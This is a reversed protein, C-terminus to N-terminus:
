CLDCVCVCVHVPVCARACSVPGLSVSSCRLCPQLQCHLRPPAPMAVVAAQLSSGATTTKRIPGSVRCGSSAASRGLRPKIWSPPFCLFEEGQRGQLQIAACNTMHNARGRPQSCSQVKDRSSNRQYCATQEKKCCCPKKKIEELQRTASTCCQNGKKRDSVKLRKACRQSFVAERLNKLNEM